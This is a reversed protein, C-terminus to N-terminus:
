RGAENKRGTAKINDGQQKMNNEFLLKRNEDQPGKNDCQL